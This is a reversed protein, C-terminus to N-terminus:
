AVSGRPLQWNPRIFHCTYGNPHRELYDRHEPQAEWFHGVRSVQMVVSNPWLRSADVHAITCEAIERQEDSTYFIASRDSAGRDGSPEWEIMIHCCRFFEPIITALM